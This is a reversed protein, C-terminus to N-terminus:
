SVKAVLAYKTKSDCLDCYAEKLLDREAIGWKVYWVKWM